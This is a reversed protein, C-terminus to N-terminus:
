KGRALLAADIAQLVAEALTDAEHQWVVNGDSARCVFGRQYHNCEISNCTSLKLYFELLALLDTTNGEPNPMSLYGGMGRLTPDIEMAIAFRIRRELKEQDTM